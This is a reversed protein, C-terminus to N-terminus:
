RTNEAEWWQQKLNNAQVVALNHICDTGHLKMYIKAEAITIIQNCEQTMWNCGQEQYLCPRRM